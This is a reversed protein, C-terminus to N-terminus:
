PSGMILSETFGSPRFTSADIRGISRRRASSSPTPGVDMLAIGNDVGLGGNARGNRKQPTEEPSNCRCRPPAPAPCTAPPRLSEQSM